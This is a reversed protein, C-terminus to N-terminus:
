RRQFEPAGLALGLLDTLTPLRGGPSAEMGARAALPNSGSILVRRTDSSMEGQLIAAGIADVQQELSAGAALTPPRWKGAAIGFVRGAAVNSGFNIRSLVAGTNMWADADDPWGDPTLHGYLAQGLTAALQVSRGATDPRAQMVRYTSAVLEYPTKM